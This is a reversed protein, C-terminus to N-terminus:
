NKWTKKKVRLLKKQAKHSLDPQTLNGGGGGRQGRGTEGRM